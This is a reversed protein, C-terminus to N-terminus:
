EGGVVQLVPAPGPANLWYDRLPKKRHRVLRHWSATVRPRGERRGPMAAIEPFDWAIHGDKLVLPDRETYWRVRVFAYALVSM